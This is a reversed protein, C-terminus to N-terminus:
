EGEKPLEDLIFNVYDNLTTGAAAARERLKKATSPKVVLSIHATRKERKQFTPLGGQHQQTQPEQDQQVTNLYAAAPNIIPQDKKM